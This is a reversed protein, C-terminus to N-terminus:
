QIQEHGAIFPASWAGKLQSHSLSGLPGAFIIQVIMIYPSYTPFGESVSEILGWIVDM